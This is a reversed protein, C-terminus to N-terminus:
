RPFPRGPRQRVYAQHILARTDGGPHLQSVRPSALDQQKMTPPSFTDRHHRLSSGSAQSSSSGTQRRVDTGDRLRQVLGELQQLRLRRLGGGHEEGDVGFGALDGTQALDRLYVGKKRGSGASCGHGRRVQGSGGRGGCSAALRPRFALSHTWSSHGRSSPLPPPLSM